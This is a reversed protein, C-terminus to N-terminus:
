HPRRLWSTVIVRRGFHRRIFGRTRPDAVGVLAWVRRGCPLLELLGLRVHAHTVRKALLSTGPAHQDQCGPPPAPERPSTQATSPPRALLLTHGNWAGVMRLEPTQWGGAVFHIVHPLHRFDSGAVPVGGCGVPPLSELFTLCAQPTRMGPRYLVSATVTYLRSTSSPTAVDGPRVVVLLRVGHLPPLSPHLHPVHYAPNLRATISYRGPKVARFPYLRSPLSM